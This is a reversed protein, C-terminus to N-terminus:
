HKYLMKIIAILSNIKPESLRILIRVGKYDNVNEKVHSGLYIKSKGKLYYCNKQLYEAHPCNMFLVRERGSALWRLYIHDLNPCSGRIKVEDKNKQDNKIIKRVLSGLCLKCACYRLTIRDSEIVKEKDAKELLKRIKNVIDQQPTYSDIDGLAEQDIFESYDTDLYEIQMATM